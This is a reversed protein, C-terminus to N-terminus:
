VTTSKIAHVRFKDLVLYPLCRHLNVSDSRADGQRSVMVGGFLFGRYVAACNCDTGSCVMGMYVLSFLSLVLSSEVHVRISHNM